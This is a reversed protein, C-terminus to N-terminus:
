EGGELLPRIWEVISHWANDGDLDLAENSAEQSALDLMQWEGAKTKLDIELSIEHGGLSWEAQVGGEATPYLYPLPLDDPFQTAFRRALWDLGEEVPAVGEGDLWGDRLSRFEDLRAGIDNPDLISIHEISEISQIRGNRNFRGIGQVMVRVGDRYGNFAELVNDLHHLAIPASVRPGDIIHLEFSMKAQDTEPVAGRLTVEETMERVQSSALLLKRRTLRNLRAPREVNNPDFEITEEDRLSRGLRDFYGLLGDPLHNTISQDHEAADIAGVIAGRAQEFYVESPGPILGPREIFLEVCPIASGDDIATLKLSIGDTFGRPARQRDSHEQLYRWKAVEVVMEELVALDKLVELPIAHGEFRKGILRPSLFTKSASM